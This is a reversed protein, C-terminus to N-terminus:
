DTANLVVILGPPRYGATHQFREYIPQLFGDTPVFRPLLVLFAALSFSFFFGSNKL